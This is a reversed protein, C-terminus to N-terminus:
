NIGLDEFIKDTVNVPLFCGDVKINNIIYAIAMKQKHTFRNKNRIM